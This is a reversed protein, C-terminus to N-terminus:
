RSPSGAEAESVGEGDDDSGGVVVSAAFFVVTYM